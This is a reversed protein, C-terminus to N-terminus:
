PPACRTHGGPDAGAILQQVMDRINQTKKPTAASGYRKHKTKKRHLQQVMDRINNKKQHLQQVMDRINTKKRHLLQVM